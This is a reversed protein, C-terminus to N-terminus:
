RRGRRPRGRRPRGRRPRRRGYQGGLPHSDGQHTRVRRRRAAGPVGGRDARPRDPPRAHAPRAVQRLVAREGPPLVQEVVLLKGGPRMARRCNGCSPPAGSTTGTTSSRPWSTPTVAPRCRPSSTGASSRAATPSARAALAADGGAVVSAPRVPRRAPQPHARLIRRWCCGTGAASTSSPRSGPSTTPPRGGRRRRQTTWGTMAENFVAGPGPQPWTTSTAPGSCGTSPPSAPASARWCTGGPATSSPATCAPWRGCRVPADSRLPEALPTLAFGGEAVEAFVGVSALARLLRYLTPPHARVGGGARREAAPGGAASRGGRARGRRAAGERGLLRDDAAPADGAGGRGGGGHGDGEGSSCSAAGLVPAGGACGAGLTGTARRGPLGARM